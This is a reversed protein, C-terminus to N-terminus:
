GAGPVEEWFAAADLTLDVTMEAQDIRVDALRWSESPAPALLVLPETIGSELLLASGAVRLTGDGSVGNRIVTVVGSGLDVSDVAFGSDEIAREILVEAQAAPLRGRALTEQSPGSLTVSDVVIEEGGPGTVRLDTLTGTVNEFSRDGFSVAELTVDMGGILARPVRVETAQVRVSQARGDLLSPGFLDLSIRVDDGELGAERAMTTLLPGAVLPVVLFVVLGVLLATFLLFRLFGSL